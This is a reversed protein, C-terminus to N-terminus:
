HLEVKVVNLVPHQIRRVSNDVRCTHLSWDDDDRASYKGKVEGKRCSIMNDFTKDRKTAIVGHNDTHRPGFWYTDFRQARLISLLGILTRLDKRSAILAWSVRSLSLVITPLLTTSSSTRTRVTFYCLVPSSLACDYFVDRFENTSVLVSYGGWVQM